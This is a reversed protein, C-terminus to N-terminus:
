NNRKKSQKVRILLKKRPVLIERVGKRVLDVENENLRETDTDSVDDEGGGGTAVEGQHLEEIVKFLNQLAIQATAAVADQNLSLKEADAIMKKLIVNLKKYPRDMKRAYSKRLSKIEAATGSARAEEAGKEFGKGATTAIAATKAGEEGSGLHGLAKGAQKAGYALAKQGIAKAKGSGIGALKAKMRDLAGEDIEGSETMLQLEREIMEVLQTNTLEKM